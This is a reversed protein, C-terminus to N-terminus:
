IRPKLKICMTRRFSQFDWPIWAAEQTNYIISRCMLPHETHKAKARKIGTSGVNTMIEGRCVAERQKSLASGTSWFPLRLRVDILKEAERKKEGPHHPHHYQYQQHRHHHYQHYQCHHQDHHRSTWLGRWLSINGIIYVISSREVWGFSIPSLWLTM